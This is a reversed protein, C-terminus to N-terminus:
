KSYSNIRSKHSSTWWKSSKGMTASPSLKELSSSHSVLNWIVQSSQTPTTLIPSSICGYSEIMYTGKGKNLMDESPMPNIQNRINKDLIQFGAYYFM